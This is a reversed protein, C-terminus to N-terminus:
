PSNWDPDLIELAARSHCPPCLCVTGCNYEICEEKSLYRLAEITHRRNVNNLRIIEGVLRGIEYASAKGTYLYSALEEKTIPSSMSIAERLHM